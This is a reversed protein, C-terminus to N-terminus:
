MVKSFHIKMRKSIAEGISKNIVEKKFPKVIFSSAGKTLATIATDKDGHGTILIVPVGKYKKVIMELLQVGNIEPMKIDSVVLSFTTQGILELANAPSNSTTISYESKLMTSLLKLISDEDDIVLVRPNQQNNIIKERIETIENLIRNTASVSIEKSTQFQKFQNSLKDVQESLEDKAIIKFGDSIAKLHRMISHFEEDIKVSTKLIRLKKLLQDFTHNSTKTFMENISIM